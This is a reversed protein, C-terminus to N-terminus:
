NEARALKILTIEAPAGLRVPPGWYGTGRSIYIWTGEHWHLGSTYPQQLPVFFNWPLFQGGHTHGSLQLDFGLRSAAFISRPQHALLIKVASEPAGALAREPNSDHHPLMHGANYDTVGAMLLRGDRIQVLRHENCLVTFGLRAAEQMWAEASDSYYEHNGTVFFKGYRAALRALPAVEERLSEVRGDALDGTFAVLDPRLRNAEEVVTQVFKRRITPGVHLDSIQVIRLGNWDEPLGALAVNVEEIRPRRRAAYVGYAVLLGSFALIGANTTRLFDLGFNSSSTTAMLAADNAGYVLAASKHVVLAALWILDRGLTLFFVFNFFGM